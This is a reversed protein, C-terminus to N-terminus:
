ELLRFRLRLQAQAKTIEDKLSFFTWCWRSWPSNKPWTTWGCAHNVVAFPPSKNLVTGKSRFLSKLILPVLLSSASAYSTSNFIALSRTPTLGTVKLCYSYSASAQLDSCIYNNQLNNQNGFKEWGEFHLWVFHIFSSFTWFQFVLDNLFYFIHNKKSFFSSVALYSIIQPKKVHNYKQPRAAGVNMGTEM